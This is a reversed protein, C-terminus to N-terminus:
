PGMGWEVVYDESPAEMTADLHAIKVWAGPVEPASWTLKWVESSGTRSCRALIPGQPTELEEEGQEQGETTSLGPIFAFIKVNWEQGEESRRLVVYTEEVEMLRDEFERPGDPAATRYRRWSGIPFSAWASYEPNPHGLPVKAWDNLIVSMSKPARGDRHDLSGSTAEFGYRRVRLDGDLEFLLYENSQSRYRGGGVAAAYPGAPIAYVFYLDMRSSCWGYVLHRSDIYDPEGLEWLVDEGTTVGDRVFELDDSGIAGRTGSEAASRPIPVIICGSVTALLATVLAPICHKIM